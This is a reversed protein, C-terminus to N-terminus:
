MCYEVINLMLCRDGTGWDTGVGELRDELRQRFGRADEQNEFCALFDDAFRFYHAETFLFFLRFISASRFHQELRSFLKVM